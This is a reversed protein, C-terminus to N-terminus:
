PKVPPTTPPTTVPPVVPLDAPPKPRTRGLDGKMNKLHPSLLEQDTPRNIRKAM